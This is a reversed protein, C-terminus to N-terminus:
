CRNFNSAKLRQVETEFALFGPKKNFGSNKVQFSSGCSLRIYCALLCGRVSVWSGPKKSIRYSGRKEFNVKAQPQVSLMEQSKVQVVEYDEPNHYKVADKLQDM